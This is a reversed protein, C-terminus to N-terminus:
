LIIQFKFNSILKFKDLKFYDFDTTNEFQIM